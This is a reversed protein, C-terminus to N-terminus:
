FAFIGDRIKLVVDDSDTAIRKVGAVVFAPSGFKLLLGIAKDLPSEWDELDIWPSGSRTLNKAAFTSAGRGHFDGLLIDGVEIEHSDGLSFVCYEGDSVGIFVDRENMAVVRIKIPTSM